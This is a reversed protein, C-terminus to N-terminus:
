PSVPQLQLRLSKLQNLPREIHGAITSGFEGRGSMRGNVTLEAGQQDLIMARLELAAPATTRVTLTSFESPNRDEEDREEFACGFRGSSVSGSYVRGEQTRCAVALPWLEDASIKQPQGTLPIQLPPVNDSLRDRRSPLSIAEFYIRQPELWPRLELHRIRDLPIEIRELNTGLQESYWGHPKVNHRDGDTTVIWLSYRGRGMVRFLIESSTDTAEPEGHFGNMSSWGVHQGAGQYDTLFTVGDQTWEGSEAVPIKMRFPEAFSYVELALDIRDPLPQLLSYMHFRDAATRKVGAAQQFQHLPIKSRSDLVTASSVEFQAAAPAALDIVAHDMFDTNTLTPLPPLDSVSGRSEEDVAFAGDMQARAIRGIRFTNAGVTLEKETTGTAESLISSQEADRVFDPQSHSRWATVEPLQGVRSKAEFFGLRPMETSYGRPISRSSLRFVTDYVPVRIEGKADTTLDVFSLELSQDISRNKVRNCEIAIADIELGTIPTGDGSKYRQSLIVPANEFAKAFLEKAMAPNGNRRHWTALMHQAYFFDPHRKLIDDLIERTEVDDFRQRREGDVYYISRYKYVLEKCQELIALEEPPPDFPLNRWGLIGTLSTHSVPAKEPRTGPLLMLSLVAVIVVASWRLKASRILSGNMLRRIRRATPTEATAFGLVIPEPTRHTQSAAAAILTECYIEPVTIRHALLTDDCCDERTQRLKRRLWWMMPHFWWLVSLIIEFWGVLLDRRSIHALEHALIVKLQQEPLSTTAEPLVIFEKFLGTAFPGDCEESVLVGPRSRISLCEATRRTLRQISDAAPVGKRILRRVKRYHSAVYSATAIVGLAHIAFLTLLWWDRHSLGAASTAGVLVDDTVDRSVSSEVVAPRNRPSLESTFESPVGPRTDPAQPRPGSEALTIQDTIEPANSLIGTSLNWFPPMAFKVLAILLIAYRLQASRNSAVTVLAIAVVAVIASQYGATLLWTLWESVADILNMM